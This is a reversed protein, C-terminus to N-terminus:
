DVPLRVPMLLGTWDAGDPTETTFFVPRVAAAAEMRLPAHRIHSAAKATKAMDALYDPNFGIAHLDNDQEDPRNFLAHIRPYTGDITRANLVPQEEINLALSGIGLEETDPLSLVVSPIRRAKKLASVWSKLDAAKIIWERRDGKYPEELEFTYRSIRYRDTAAVTLADDEISVHVACLIPLMTDKSTCLLATEFAARLQETPATLQYM